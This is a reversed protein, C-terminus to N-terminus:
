LCAAKRLGPSRAGAARHEAGGHRRGAEQFVPGAGGAPGCVGLLVAADGDRCHRHQDRCFARHHGFFPSHRVTEVGPGRRGRRHNGPPSAGPLRLRDPLAARRGASGGAAGGRQFEVVPQVRAPGRDARRSRCVVAGSVGDGAEGVCDGVWRLGYYVLSTFLLIYIVFGILGTTVIVDFSENHMRDPVKDWGELNGIEATHHPYFAYRTADPGYGVVLRGPDEAALDVAGNWILVRGVSSGEANTLQALRNLYPIEQVFSLPTNPLNVVVLLVAFVAGVGVVARALRWKHYALTWLLGGFLAAFALGLVPGRSQTYLICVLQLVLLVGYTGMRLWSGKQRMAEFLRYLTLPVALSLIAALYIPNGMTSYARESADFTSRWVQVDFHQLIGYLAVPLSALLVATILRQLQARTQLLAVISFFFVLYAAITYLGQLRDYRGWFSIRPLISFASAVGHSVLVLGAALVIPHRWLARWSATAEGASAEDAIGERQRALWAAAARVVWAVAMIVAISRLVAVKDPEYIRSSYPNFYLPTVIVAALWGAELLRGTLIALRTSM